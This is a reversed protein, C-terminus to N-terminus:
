RDKEYFIMATMIKMNRGGRHRKRFLAQAESSDSLEIMAKIVELRQGADFDMKM